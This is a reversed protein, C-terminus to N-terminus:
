KNKLKKYLEEQAKPIYIKEVVASHKKGLRNASRNIAYICKFRDDSINYSSIMVLESQKCAWDYFKKHDFKEDNHKYDLTDEYPIDCYLISNEKIPVNEYSANYFMINNNKLEAIKRLRYYRQLLKHNIFKNMDANTKVDKFIDCRRSLIYKNTYFYKYLEYTRDLLNNSKLKPVITKLYKSLQRNDNNLITYWMYEWLYNNRKTAYTELEVPWCWIYKIYPEKDKNELFYDASIWRKENRFKDNVADKFLTYLDKNLENYIVTNYKWSLSMAHTVAGGGGFLDYFNEANPFANIIKTIITSKSGQYSIGYSM